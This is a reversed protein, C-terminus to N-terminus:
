LYQLPQHNTHVITDKGMLYDRWKKVVQVLSFLEKDYPAYNLVAGHFLEFHYCHPKGCQMLFEELAYRSADIEV